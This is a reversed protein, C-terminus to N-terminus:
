KGQDYRAAALSPITPLFRGAFHPPERMINTMLLGMCGGKWLPGTTFGSVGGHEQSRLDQSFNAADSYPCPNGAASFWLGRSTTVIRCWSDVRTDLLQPLPSWRADPHHAFVSVHMIEGSPAWLVYDLGPYLSNAETEDLECRVRKQLMLAKLLILTRQRFVHV